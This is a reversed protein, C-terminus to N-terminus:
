MLIIVYQIQKGDDGVTSFMNASPEPHTALGWLEDKNHGRALISTLKCDDFHVEDEKNDQIFAMSPLEFELIDSGYTGVVIKPMGTISIQDQGQLRKNNDDVLAELASQSLCMSRIHWDMISNNITENTKGKIRRYNGTYAYLELIHRNANKIIEGINTISFYLFYYM